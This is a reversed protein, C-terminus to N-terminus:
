SMAQMDIKNFDIQEGGKFDVKRNLIASDPTKFPTVYCDIFSERM